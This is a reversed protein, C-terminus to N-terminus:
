HGPKPLSIRLRTLLTQFLQLVKWLRLLIKASASAPYQEKFLQQKEKENKGESLDFYRGHFGTVRAKNVLSFASTAVVEGSISNFAHAGLLALSAITSKSLIVKRLGLASPITMWSQMTIMSSYGRNAAMLLGREIFSACLDYKGLPYERSMWSVMWKNLDGSKMYPPNAIVADYRRALPELEALARAAKEAVSFGFM